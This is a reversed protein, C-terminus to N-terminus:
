DLTGLYGGPCWAEKVSTVRLGRLLAPDTYYAAPYLGLLMLISDSPHWLVFLGHCWLIKGTVMIHGLLLFLFHPYLGSRQLSHAAMFWPPRHTGRRGEGPQGPEDVTFSHSPPQTPFETELREVWLCFSVWSWSSRILSQGGAWTSVTSPSNWTTDWRAQPAPTFLCSSNIVEDYKPVTAFSVTLCVM